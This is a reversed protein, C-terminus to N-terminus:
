DWKAPDHEIYVFKWAHMTVPNAYLGKVFPKKVYNTANNYLPLTPQARLLLAEAEGLMRYRADPDRQRNAENLLRVFAPDSWGSGNDGGEVVYMSLFTYPDMYDGIWGSRATGRYDLRSRTQLFTRFEMNRLPITIGLNQKWQAQIFEANSRNSESTNYTVEVESVPFTRPDYQGAANAYGAEALLARAKDPDFRDGEPSPYGPFMRLPVTSTTPKAARRFRALAEKDIAMNLAHRVRVDSTPARTTNFVYSETAVEPADMYDKYQRVLPIWSSPVTHNFTAYVEGAKYLNMMTTLDEVAYFTLTDLKVVAADYYAPNRVMVIADYPRWRQLTFAGSVVIKGPQTWTDGYREVTRRPVPRFFQHSVLKPVFPVPQRLHFRVTRADVAEVGVDEPRVPVFELNDAGPMGPAALARPRAAADAPLALRETPAVPDMVFAGSVRDRAFVAGENYAQANSIDYAMYATRSALAPALGRRISYVFDDATLPTGDSWRAERLHFTFVSNDDNPEWTQALAPIPQGTQPDYETLGDFIAMIIRADVQSSSVPPDLSEPESGSIYRMQQGQPPAVKGFYKSDASGTTCAALALSAAACALTLVTRRWPVPLPARFCSRM